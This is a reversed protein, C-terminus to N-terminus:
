SLHLLSLTITTLMDLHFLIEFSLFNPDTPGALCSISKTDDLRAKKKKKKITLLVDQWSLVLMIHLIEIEYCEEKM